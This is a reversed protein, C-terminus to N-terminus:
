TSEIRRVLITGGHRVHPHERALVMAEELTRAEVIFFGGLTRSFADLEVRGAVSGEAGLKEGSVRRGQAALREAWARYENVRTREDGPATEGFLLFAFRDPAPPPGTRVPGRALWGVAFALLLSAALAARRWAPMVTRGRILGRHQLAGVVRRELQPGPDIERPLSVLADIRDPDAPLRDDTM